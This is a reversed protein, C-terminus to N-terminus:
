PSRYWRDQLGVQCIYWCLREGEDCRGQAGGRIPESEAGDESSELMTASM